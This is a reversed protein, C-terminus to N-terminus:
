ILRRSTPEALRARAAGQILLAVVLVSADVVVM